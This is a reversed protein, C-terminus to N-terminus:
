ILREVVFFLAYVSGDSNGEVTYTVPQGAKAQFAVVPGCAFGGAPLGCAGPSVQASSLFILSNEIEPGAEDTWGLEFVWENNSAVAKTTTMYISIRFLGDYKPTFIPTAAIPASQNPLAVRAVVRPSQMFRGPHKGSTEQQSWASCTLSAFLATLLMWKHM